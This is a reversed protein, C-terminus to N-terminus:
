FVGLPVSGEVETTGPPSGQLSIQTSSPDTLRVATISPLSNVNLKKGSGAASGKRGSIQSAAPAAMPQMPKVVWSRWALAIGKMNFTVGIALTKPQAM